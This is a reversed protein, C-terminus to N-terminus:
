IHILSLLSTNGNRRIEYHLQLNDVAVENVKIVGQLISLLDVSLTAEPIVVFKQAKFSSGKPQNIEFNKLNFGLPFISVSADELSIDRDFAKSVEELVLAKIKEAPYQVKIYAFLGVLFLIILTICVSLLKVLRKM